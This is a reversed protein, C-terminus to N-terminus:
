YIIFMLNRGDNIDCLWNFDSCFENVWFFFDRLFQYTFLPVNMQRKV